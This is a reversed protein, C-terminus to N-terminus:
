ANAAIAKAILVIADEYPMNLYEGIGRSDKFTKLVAQELHGKGAFVIYANCERGSGTELNRVRRKVDVSRGVKVMNGFDAVYLDRVRNFPDFELDDFLINNENLLAKAKSFAKIVSSKFKVTVDSNRALAGLFSCQDENLFYTLKLNGLNEDANSTRVFKGAVKDIKGRKGVQQYVDGHEQFEEMYKQILKNASRSEIGFGDAMDISSVRLENNIQNILTQM